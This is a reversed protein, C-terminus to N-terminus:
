FREGIDGSFQAAARDDQRAFQGLDVFFKQAAGGNLNV